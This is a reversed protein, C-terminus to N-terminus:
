RPAEEPWPSDMWKTREPRRPTYGRFEGREDLSKDLWEVAQPRVRIIAARVDLWMPLFEGEFPNGPWLNEAWAFRAHRDDHRGQLVTHSQDPAFGGGPPVDFFGVETIREIFADFEGPAARCVILKSDPRALNSRRVFVGDAWIAFELEEPPAGREFLARTAVFMPWAAPDDAAAPQPQRATGSLPAFCAFALAILALTRLM